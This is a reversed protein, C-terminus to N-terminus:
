RERLKAGLRKVQAHRFCSVIHDNVLVGERRAAALFAEAIGTEWDVLTGYCDFTIVDFPRAPM